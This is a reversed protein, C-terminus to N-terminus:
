RPQTPRARSRRTRSAHTSSVFADEQKKKENKKREEQQHMGHNESSISSSNDARCEITHESVAVVTFSVIGYDVLLRDGPQALASVNARTHLCMCVYM